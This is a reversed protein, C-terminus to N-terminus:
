FLSHCRVPSQVWGFLVLIPLLFVFYFISITYLQRQQIIIIIICFVRTVCVKTQATEVPVTQRAVSSFVTKKEKVLTHLTHLTFSTTKVYKFHSYISRHM